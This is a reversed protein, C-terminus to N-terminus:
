NEVPERKRGELRFHGYTYVYQDGTLNEEEDNVNCSNVPSKKEVINSKKNDKDHPLTNNPHTCPTLKDVPVAGSNEKSDYYNNDILATDPSAEITSPKSFADAFYMLYFM